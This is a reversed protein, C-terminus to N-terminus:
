NGPESCGLAVRYSATKASTSSVSSTISQGSGVSSIQVTKSSRAHIAGIKSAKLVLAPSSPKCTFREVDSLESKTSTPPECDVLSRPKVFDQKMPEPTQVHMSPDKISVSKQFEDTCLPASAVNVVKTPATNVTLCPQHSLKTATASYVLSHKSSKKVPFRTGRGYGSASRKPARIGIQESTARIQAATVATRNRMIGRPYTQMTPIYGSVGSPTDKQSKSKQLKGPTFVSCYGSSGAPSHRNKGHMAKQRIAISDVITTQRVTTTATTTTKTTVTTLPSNFSVATPVMLAAAERPDFEMKAVITDEVKLGASTSLEDVPEGKFDTKVKLEPKMCPFQPRVPTSSSFYDARAFHDARQQAYQEALGHAVQLRNRLDQQRYQVTPIKEEKVESGAKEAVLRDPWHVQDSSTSSDKTNQEETFFEYGRDEDIRDIEGLLENSVGEYSVFGEDTETKVTKDGHMDSGVIKSKGQPEDEDSSIIIVGESDIQYDASTRARGPRINYGLKTVVPVVGAPTRTYNGVTEPALGPVKETHFQQLVSPVTAPIKAASAALEKSLKPLNLGPPFTTSRQNAVRHNLDTRSREYLYQTLGGHNTGEHMSIKNNSMYGSFDNLHIPSISRDAVVVEKFDELPPHYPADVYEPRRVIKQSNEAPYWALAEKDIDGVSPNRM